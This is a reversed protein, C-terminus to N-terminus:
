YEAYAYQTSVRNRGSRKSLYLAEDSRKLLSGVTDGPSKMAIGISATVRIPEPLGAMAEIQTRLREAISEAQDLTMGKLIMAFEEGGYRAVSDIERTNICLLQSVRRIVEDGMQHGYQDNITKFHDLDILLLAVLEHRRDYPRLERELAELFARRNLLGSLEDTTAMIQLDNRQACLALWIVAFGSGLGLIYNFLSFFAQVQDLHLPDPIPKWIITAVMRGIQLISFSVLVAGLARVPSHLAPYEHRFLVVVSAVVQILIASTRVLIRARVDPSAYTFHLFASFQVVVLVVSLPIFRQASNLIRAISQHLLSFSILIALNPLVIGFFAPIHPKCAFLLLGILASSLAAVLWWLGRGADKSHAIASCAVITAFLCLSYGALIVWMSM